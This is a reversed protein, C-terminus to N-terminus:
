STLPLLLTTLWSNKKHVFILSQKQLQIKNTIYANKQDNDRSIEMYPAEKKKNYTQIFHLPIKNKLNIQESFSAVILHCSCHQLDNGTKM